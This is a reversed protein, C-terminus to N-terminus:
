VLGTAPLPPIIPNATNDGPKFPANDKRDPIDTTVTNANLDIGLRDARKECDADQVLPNNDTDTLANGDVGDLADWWVAVVGTPGDQATLGVRAVKANTTMATYVLAADEDSHTFAPGLAVGGDVSVADAGIIIARGDKEWDETVEIDPTQALVTAGFLGVLLLATVLVLPLSWIKRRIKMLEEQNIKAETGVIGIHQKWHKM